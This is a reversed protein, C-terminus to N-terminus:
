KMLATETRTLHDVLARAALDSDGAMMADVIAEHESLVGAQREHTAGLARIGIRINRAKLDTYVKTILSNDQASVLALHFETDLEIFDREAGTASSAIQRDLINRMETTPARDERMVANMAEVEILRRFELVEHIEQRTVPPVYAGHRPVLQILGESALLLFSERVPTRSVGEIMGAVDEEALFQGHFATVPLINECIFEYARTRNSKSNKTM